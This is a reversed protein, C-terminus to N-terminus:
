GGPTLPTPNIADILANLKNIIDLVSASGNTPLKELQSANGLVDTLGNLQQRLISVNGSLTDVDAKTAKNNLAETIGQVAQSNGNVQNILAGNVYGSLDVLDEKDAKSNQLNSVSEVSAKDALAGDIADKTYVDSLEAKNAELAAVRGILAASGSENNAIWDAVEKMTDYAAPAASLLTEVQAAVGADVYDKAAQLAADAAGKEDYDNSLNSVSATIDAVATDFEDKTIVETSLPLTMLNKVDRIEKAM